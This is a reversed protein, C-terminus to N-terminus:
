PVEAFASPPTPEPEYTAGPLTVATVTFRFIDGSSRRRKASLLVATGSTGTTEATTGLQTIGGGSSEFEWQGTVSAGQVSAGTGDVVTVTAQGRWHKRDPIVQVSVPLVVKLKLGGGGVTGSVETSFSASEQGVSDVAKVVYYYTVGIDATTDVHESFTVTAINSYGSGSTMSRYVNYGTLSSDLNQDWNLAISTSGAAATLGSPTM